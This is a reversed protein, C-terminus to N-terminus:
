TTGSPIRPLWALSASRSSFSLLTSTFTSIAESQGLVVDDGSVRRWAFRGFGSSNDQCDGSASSAVCLRLMNSQKKILEHARVLSKDSRSDDIGRAPL